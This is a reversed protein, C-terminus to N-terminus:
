IFPINEPDITGNQIGRIGIDWGKGYSTHSKDNSNNTGNQNNFTSQKAAEPIDINHEIMYKAIDEFVEHAFLKGNDKRLKIQGDYIDYDEWWVGGFEKTAGVLESFCSEIDRNIELDAAVNCITHTHQDNQGFLLRERKLHQYLIHYCEHVIVFVIYKAVRWNVETNLIAKTPNNKEMDNVYRQALKNGQSLMTRAFLPNMFVRISDTCATDIEYTWIIPKSIYPKLFSYRPNSQMLNIAAQTKKAISKPNITIYSGDSLMVTDEELECVPIKDVSNNYDSSQMEEAGDAVNRASGAFISNQNAM